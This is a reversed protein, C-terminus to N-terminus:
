AGIATLTEGDRERERQESERRVVTWVTFSNNAEAEEAGWGRERERERERGAAQKSAGETERQRERAQERGATQKSAGETERETEREGQSSAVRKKM